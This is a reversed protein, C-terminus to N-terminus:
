AGIGVIPQALHQGAMSGYFSADGFSFVGGDAATLWYGKGDPTSAIGVVPQALKTGAMSGYFSADGFSFVGGDAATLWYGKLLSSPAATVSAFVTGTLQSISPSTSGTLTATVCPPSGAAYSVPMVPQWAGGASSASPNWWSLSNGGNLNCDKIELSSFSSQQSVRVDFYGTAPTAAPPAAVPPSSFQSLTFAGEGAAVVSTNNPLAANATGTPSSSSATIDTTTGAQPPPPAPSPSFVTGVFPAASAENSPASNGVSNIAEVTFYYTTGNTLGAVTYSTGSILASNVPTSSEGGSSTGEYIDYGTITSGGDSTPATWSLSVEENGSTASLSTPSGPVTTTGSTSPQVLFTPDSYHFSSLSIKVGGSVSSITPTVGSIQTGEQESVVLQSATVNWFSLLSTPLFATFQGDNVSGSSMLHPAAVQFELANTLPDYTPLSFAQANTALWTGEAATAFNSFSTQQSGTLSLGSPPSMPSLFGILFDSYDKNAQNACSTLMCGTTSWSSPGPSATFDLTYDGGSLSISENSVNGTMFFDTPNLTGTSLSVEFSDSSSVNCSQLEYHGNCQFQVNAGAGSDFVNLAVGSPLSASSNFKLYDICNTTLSSSCSPWTTTSGTSSTVGISLAATATGPIPTTSDTVELALSSSGATTPTGSIVGTSSDLSLGAPLSGSSISWTYPPTGGSASVTMTMPTGVVGTISSPAAIALSANSASYSTGVIYANDFGDIQCLSTSPCSIETGGTVSGGSFEDSVAPMSWSQGNWALVEGSNSTTNGVAECFDASVCSIGYLTGSGAFIPQSSWSNGNWGIIEGGAGGGGVSECFTSSACSVAQLTGVQSVDQVSSWSSTGNWTASAGGGDINDYGVAVCYTTSPCSIGNLEAVGAYSIATSWSSGNWSLVLGSTYSVAVCFDASRCSVGYLADTGSPVAQSSWTAGNWSYTAGVSSSQGGVAMCFSSTPCSIGYLTGSSGLSESSSWDTGNWSMAVPIAGYIAGVAMCFSSTHCSIGNSQNIFNDATNATPQGLFTQPASWSGDTWSFAVDFGNYSSAQTGIAECFTTSACSLQTLNTLSLSSPVPDNTFANAATSTDVTWEAATATSSATQGAVECSYATSLPSSAVCAIDNLGSASADTGTSSNNLWTGDWVWVSNEGGGGVASCSNLGGSSVPICSVDAFGFNPSNYPLSNNTWSTGTGGWTVAAAHLYGGNMYAGVAMCLQSSTSPSCSIARLVPYGGDGFLNSLVDQQSWDTGNWVFSVDTYGTNSNVGSGIAMCFNASTCSVGNLSVGGSVTSTFPQPTWDTGNWSVTYNGVAMCFITSACSISRLQGMGLVSFPSPQSLWTTGNWQEILNGNLGECFDASVCSIPHSFTSSHVANASGLNTFNSLTVPSALYTYQDGTNVASTGGADAVTVDITGASHAPPYVTLSTSSNFTTANAAISGFYVQTAPIFNTGTITVQPLGGGTPGSGPSISTVTPAPYFTFEDATTTSSTSGAVSVTIDVTGASEAPSTATIVGVSNVTFNGAAVAGFDVATAGTFNAGGISVSTGGTTPGAIPSVLDVMPGTTASAMPPTGFGTITGIATALGILSAAVRWRRNRPGVDKYSSTNSRKARDRLLGLRKSHLMRSECSGVSVVGM